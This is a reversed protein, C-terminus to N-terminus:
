NSLAMGRAEDMYNNLAYYWLSPFNNPNRCPHTWHTTIYWEIPLLNEASVDTMRYCYSMHFKILQVSECMLRCRCSEWELVHNCGWISVYKTCCNSLLVSHVLERTSILHKFNIDFILLIARTTSASILQFCYRVIIILAKIKYCIQQIRNKM